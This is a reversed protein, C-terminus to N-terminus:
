RLGLTWALSIPGPPSNLDGRGLGFMEEAGRTHQPVIAATAMADSIAGVVIACPFNPCRSHPAHGVKLIHNLQLFFVRAQRVAFYGVTQTAHTLRLLWNVADTPAQSFLLQNYTAVPL